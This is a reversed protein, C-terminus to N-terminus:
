GGGPPQAARDAILDSLLAYDIADPKRFRLCGKGFDHGAMREGACAFVDGGTFYVAVYQKQSAVAVESVGEREYAIMGYRM